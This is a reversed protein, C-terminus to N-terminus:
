VIALVMALQILSSSCTVDLDLSLSFPKIEPRIAERSRGSECVDRVSLHLILIIVHLGQNELSTSRTVHVCTRRQSLGGGGGGEWNLVASCHM